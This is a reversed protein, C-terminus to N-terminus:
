EDGEDTLSKTRWATCIAGFEICCENWAYWPAHRVEIWMTSIFIWVLYAPTIILLFLRLVM